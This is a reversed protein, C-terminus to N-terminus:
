GRQFMQPEAFRRNGIIAKRDNSLEILQGREAKRIRTDRILADSLQRFRAM